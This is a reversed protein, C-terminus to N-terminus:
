ELNSPRWCDSCYYPVFQDQSASSSLKASECLENNRTTRTRLLTKTAVIKYPMILVICTRRKQTDPITRAAAM